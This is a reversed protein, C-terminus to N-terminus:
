FQNNEKFSFYSERTVILHDLLNLGVLEAAEKCRKTVRMDEKSPNTEGSPHNHLMFINVAGILLATQLLERVPFMASNISGKSLEACALPKNRIDTYVAYVGEFGQVTISLEKAFQYVSQPDTFPKRGDVNFPTREKVLYPTGDEHLYVTAKNLNM